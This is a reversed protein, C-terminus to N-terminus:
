PLRLEVPLDELLRLWLESATPFSPVAHRLLHVPLKGVIAVTAAHLLEGAEPGVFTAGLVRGSGRDVVLKARGSVHDRLLAGGTAADFPVESTVVDHGAEQAEAETMGVSAVQPDTFVVQPVPVDDPVPEVPRDAAEAALRSGLLRAQYKGWHTLPPGGSADGIAHLWDPLRGHTVDDRSLGVAELGVDHLLPRRGTAVLLEDASLEGDGTELVVPGGHVRGVGTDRADKRRCSSAETGLRVEVGQDRLAGAVLEGVFAEQGGLLASGRVLMTVRAGLAALWTAAECAVVGGGVVLLTGPVEKLGTADHSGWPLADRFTEPVLPESGSAIVVARRATLRRSGGGREVQVEREGVLRGHGRVLTIGAGQAWEVQEADDYGSVWTDRRELLADQELRGSTMGHLDSGAGVLTVPRLLAKSPVCAWYSCEGGLLEGEVLVASLGGEVAYQAVNEGVPGGGIVVVDTEERAGPEQEHDTPSM